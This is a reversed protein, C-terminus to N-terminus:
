KRKEMFRRFVVLGNECIVHMVGCSVVSQWDLKAFHTVSIVFDNKTTSNHYSDFYLM